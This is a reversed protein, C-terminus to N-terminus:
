KTESPLKRTPRTRLDGGCNPCVQKHRETACNACFTCEFSCIFVAQGDWDLTTQCTECATRM